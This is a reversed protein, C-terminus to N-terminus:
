KLNMLKNETQLVNIFETDQLYIFVLQCTLPCLPCGNSHCYYTPFSSRIVLCKTFFVGFVAQMNVNKKELNIQPLKNRSAIKTVKLYISMKIPHYINNWNQIFYHQLTYILWYVIYYKSLRLFFSLEVVGIVHIM